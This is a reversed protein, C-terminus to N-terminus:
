FYVWTEPHVNKHLTWWAWWDSIGHRESGLQSCIYTSCWIKWSSCVKPSIGWGGRRVSRWVDGCGVPNHRKIEVYKTSDCVSNLVALTWLLLCLLYTEGGGCLQRLVKQKPNTLGVFIMRALTCVQQLITWSSYGLAKGFTGPSWSNWSGVDWVHVGKQVEM